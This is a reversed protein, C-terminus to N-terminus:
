VTVTVPVSKLWSVVTKKPTSASVPSPPASAVVTSKTEGVVSSTLTGDTAAPAEATITTSRIVPWALATGAANM